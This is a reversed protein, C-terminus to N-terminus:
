KKWQLMEMLTNHPDSSGTIAIFLFRQLQPYRMGPSCDLYSMEM